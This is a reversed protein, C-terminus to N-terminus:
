ERVDTGSIWAALAPGPPLQDFVAATRDCPTSADAAVAEQAAAQEDHAPGPQTAGVAALLQGLDLDCTWTLGDCSSDLETAEPAPMPDGGRRPAPQGEEILTAVVESM